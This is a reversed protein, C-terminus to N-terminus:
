RVFSRHVRGRRLSRGHRPALSRYAFPGSWSVLDEPNYLPPDGHFASDVSGHIPPRGEFEARFERSYNAVSKTPGFAGGSWVVKTYHTEAM